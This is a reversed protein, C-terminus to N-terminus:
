HGYYPLMWLGPTNVAMPSSVSDSTRDPSVHVFCQALCETDSESSEQAPTSGDPGGCIIQCAANKIRLLAGHDARADREGAGVGSLHSAAVGSPAEPQRRRAVGPDTPEDDFRGAEGREFSGEASPVPRENDHKLQLGDLM